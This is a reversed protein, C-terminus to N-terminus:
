SDAADIAQLITDSLEGLLRSLSLSQDAFSDPQGVPAQSRFVQRELETERDDILVWNADIWAVGDATTEFRSFTVEVGFDFPISRRQPLRAVQKIGAGNSLNAALIRQILTDLPEIWSDFDAIRMRTRDLRQVMQPRELYAPLAIPALALVRGEQGTQIAADPLAPQSALTYFKTPQTPTCAALLLLLSLARIM